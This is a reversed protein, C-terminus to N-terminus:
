ERCCLRARETFLARPLEPERPPGQSRRGTSAGGHNSDLKPPPPCPAHTRKGRMERWTTGGGDSLKRIPQVHEREESKGKAIAGTEEKEEWKAEKNESECVQVRAESLGLRQSLEERMFADPYHTEDFLRELENLQELTFNTRSRRQKVKSSNSSSSTSGLNGSGGSSGNGGNTGPSCTSEEKLRPPGSGLTLSHSLRVDANRESSPPDQRRPPSSSSPPAVSRGGPLAAMKSLGEPEPSCCDSVYDSMTDDSDSDIDSVTGNRERSAAAAPVVHDPTRAHLELDM